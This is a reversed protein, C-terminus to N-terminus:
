LFKGSHQTLMCTALSFYCVTTFAATKGPDKLEMAAWIQKGMKAYLEPVRSVNEPRNAAFFERLRDMHLEDETQAPESAPPAPSVPMVAQPTTPLDLGQM